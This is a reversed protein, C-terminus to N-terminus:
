QLQNAGQKRDLNNLKSRKHKLFSSALNVRMEFTSGKGIESATLLVDGGMARAYGRAITLGLGAGHTKRTLFPEIQNFADFIDRQMKAVIGVGTDKITVSLQNIGTDNSKAVKTSISVSGM